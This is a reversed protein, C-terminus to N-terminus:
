KWDPHFDTWGGPMAALGGENAAQNILHDIYVVQFTGNFHEMSGDMVVAGYVTAKGNGSFEASSVEANTIFLIGFIEANANVMTNGAASILFVPAQGSGVQNQITCSAGSIWYTGFSNKNLSSCDSLRHSPPILDRVETYNAKPVGFTYEFIDCPFKPDVVIDTNLNSQGNAAYSLLKDDNKNCSCNSSPCKFDAPFEDTGYWEQRECTSWSGSQPDIINTDSPCSTNGNLWTSLPVGLGGGNPNPVIEVTGSLPVSTRATLPVGPGGGDGALGFSGVKQSVLAEANCNAGNTDCDAQGRALLTVVYHRSDQKAPDTTCGQVVPDKSPDIDLMCLLAQLHVKETKSTDGEAAKPDLPLYTSNNFDYYYSGDRLAGASEAYCPHAGSTATLGADACPKWRQESGAALWGDTGDPLLHTTSSSLLVSNNMMFLKAEQIASDAMHFALKQRMENSSKRQEFVGTQVAYIVMETLLILILVASFMTIAGRQTARLKSTNRYRLNM